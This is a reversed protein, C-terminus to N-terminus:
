HITTDRPNLDEDGSYKRFNSNFAERIIQENPYLECVTSASIGAFQTLILACAYFADTDTIDPMMTNLLLFYKKLVGNFESIAHELFHFGESSYFFQEIQRNGKM